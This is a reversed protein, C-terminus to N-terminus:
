FRHGVTVLLRPRPDKFLDSRPAGGTIRWAASLDVNWRDRTYRLGFGNGSLTRSEAILTATPRAYVDVKGLDYFAYPAYHGAQYRIEFTSIAGRDGSAEGQPYARVGNSGGLFLDESSDLNKNAYQAAYKLFLSWDSSLSQLRVVDLNTKSFHGATNAFDNANTLSGTTYTVAGYFLGGSLFQDRSNFSAVIPVSTSSKSLKTGTSRFDDTMDRKQLSAGLNLNVLQSRVVPYTMGMSYQDSVGVANLAAFDKGLEYQTRAYSATGRLGNSLLPMSYSLRGFLMNEATVMGRLEIEDGLQLAHHTRYGFNLRNYGTYRSGLNDYSIDGANQKEEQVLVKLHGTGLNDGPSIVPVAKIGPVDNLLLIVRELPKSAIPDGSRLSALYDKAFSALEPDKTSASISDYRGEMVQITLEGATMDQAPILARAFPYGHTRYYQSIQNSISRFGSLDYSKGLVDGLISLLHAEDFISNDVFKIRKLEAVPGGSPTVATADGSFEIEFKTAVPAQLAPKLQQIMGGADPVPPPSSQAHSVLNVSLLTLPLFRVIQIIPHNM